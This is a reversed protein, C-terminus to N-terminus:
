KASESVVSKAARLGSEHSILRRGDAFEIVRWGALQPGAAKTWRRVTVIETEGQGQLLVARANNKLDTKMDKPM